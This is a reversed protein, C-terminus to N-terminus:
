SSLNPLKSKWDHHLKIKKKALMGDAEEEITKRISKDEDEDNVESLDVTCYLILRYTGM